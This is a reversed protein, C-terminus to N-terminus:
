VRQAVIHRPPHSRGPCISDLTVLSVTLGCHLHPLRFSDGLWARLHHQDFGGGTHMRYGGGDIRYSISHEEEQEHFDGKTFICLPCM